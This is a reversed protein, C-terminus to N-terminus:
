PNRAENQKGKSIAIHYYGKPVIIMTYTKEIHPLPYPLCFCDKYFFPTISTIFFSNKAEIIRRVAAEIEKAPEIGFIFAPSQSIVTFVSIGPM